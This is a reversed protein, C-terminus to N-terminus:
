APTDRRKPSRASNSNAASWCRRHRPSRTKPRERGTRVRRRRGQVGAAEADRLSDPQLRRRAQAGPRRTRVVPRLDYQARHRIRQAPGRTRSHRRPKGVAGAGIRGGRARHDGRYRDRDRQEDRHHQVRDGQGRLRHPGAPFLRRRQAANRAAPTGARRAPDASRTRTHGARRRGHGVGAAAVRNLGAANIEEQGGFKQAIMILHAAAKHLSYAQACAAGWLQMSAMDLRAAAGGSTPDAALPATEALLGQASTALGLLKQAAAVLGAVDVKM